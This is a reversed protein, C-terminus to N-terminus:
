DIRAALMCLDDALIGDDAFEGVRTRLAAVVEDASPNELEGLVATVGRQGFLRGKHRAEILGDTYLLIGTPGAARLSGEAYEPDVDVGLPVGQSPAAFEGGDSLRVAAPHGAYPWRPLRERPLYTMCAATVFDGSRALGSSSPPTPGASCAGPIM